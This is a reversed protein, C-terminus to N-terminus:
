CPERSNRPKTFLSRCTDRGAIARLFQMDLLYFVWRTVKGVEKDMKWREVLKGRYEIAARERANVVGLKESANAKWVRLNGDDSGSVVFRADNTFITSSVRGMRKGHFVDESSGKDKKWIRM